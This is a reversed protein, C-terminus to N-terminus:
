PLSFSKNNGCLILAEENSIKLSNNKMIPSARSTSETICASLSNFGEDLPASNKGWILICVSVITNPLIYVAFDTVM